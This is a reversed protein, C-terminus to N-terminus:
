LTVFFNPNYIPERENIVPSSVKTGHDRILGLIGEDYLRKYLEARQLDQNQLWYQWVAYHVLADQYTEPIIPMQGITFALGSATTGGFPKALTLVTTSTFGSIQYWFGDTTSQIYSGVMAATFTTGAGTVTTSGNTLTITGTTYDAISLDRVLQKFSYTITQSATSPTPWFYIQGVDIFYWQPYNSTFNTVIQLQNWYDRSPVEKVPFRYTGVTVTVSNLKQYNYPFNYNQQNAVTVDTSTFESFDWNQPQSLIKRYGDNILQAGLTLNATETNNTLSGYLNSLTTFSKM